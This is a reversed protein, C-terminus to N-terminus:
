KEDKKKTMLYPGPFNWGHSNALGECSAIWDWIKNATEGDAFDISGDDYEVRIKIVKKNEM